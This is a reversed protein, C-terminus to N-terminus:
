WKRWEAEVAAAQVAHSPALPENKNRNNGCIVVVGSKIVCLFGGPTSGCLVEKLLVEGDQTQQQADTHVRV